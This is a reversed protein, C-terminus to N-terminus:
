ATDDTTHYNKDRYFATNTVMVASYDYYWYNRQDSLKVGGFWSPATFSKTPIVQEQKMRKCIFNGFDGNSFQQAVTIYNAKNGYFWELFSLPYDQTNPENFYVGIMELCIMGKVKIHNEFLSSAHVYSGMSKGGFYPPEETSYAVFDIRYKLQKDKLVRALELLGAVGSANEDAGEQDGCADYHAGIIIREADTPGISCIVNEYNLEGLDYLQHQVSGSVAAFQEAIYNAAKKLQDPHRYNRFRCEKTLYYLDNKMRISDAAITRTILAPHISYIKGWIYLGAFLVAIFTILRKLFKM